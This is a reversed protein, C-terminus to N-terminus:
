EIQFYLSILDCFSPIFVFMPTIKDSKLFSHIWYEIAHKERCCRDKSCHGLIRLEAGYGYEAAKIYLPSHNGTQKTEQCKKHVKCEYTRNVQMVLHSHLCQIQTNYVYTHGFLMQLMEM